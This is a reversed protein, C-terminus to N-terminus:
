ITKNCQVSVPQCVPDCFTSCNWSQKRPSNASRQLTRQLTRWAVKYSLSLSHALPPDKQPILPLATQTRTPQGVTHQHASQSVPARKSRCTPSFPASSRSSYCVTQTSIPQNHKSPSVSQLVSVGATHVSLALDEHHIATSDAHQNASQTKLSQSVSLCM